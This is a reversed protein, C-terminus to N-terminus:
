AASGRSVRVRGRRHLPERSTVLLKLHPHQALLTGVRPASPLLQEFNDLVLLLRREPATKSQATEGTGMERVITPGSGARPRPTGTATGLRRRRPLGRDRRERASSRAADKGLRRPRDANRSPACAPTPGGGRTGTRARDVSDASGAPEHAHSGGTPLSSACSFSAGSGSSAHRSLLAPDQRLIRREIERLDLSPNLGLGDALLRRFDQYAALADAQRGSRYLAVMLQARLREELPHQDILPPLEATVEAHRGLSLQAEIREELAHRRLEELRAIEAQAFSGAGFDAFPAGHWLALAGAFTKEAQEANAVGLAERGEAILREFQDADLEGPPM